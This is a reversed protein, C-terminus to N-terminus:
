GCLYANVLLRMHIFEPIMGNEFSWKIRGCQIESKTQIYKLQPAYIEIRVHFKKGHIRTLHGNKHSNGSGYIINQAFLCMRCSQAFLLKKEATEKQGVCNLEALYITLVCRYLCGVKTKIAKSITISNKNDLKRTDDM